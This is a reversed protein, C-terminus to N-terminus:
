ATSDAAEEIMAAEDNQGAVSQSTYTSAPPAYETSRYKVKPKFDAFLIPEANAPEIEETEQSMVWENFVKALEELRVSTAVLRQVAKLLESANIGAVLDTMVQQHATLAERTEASALELAGRVEQRIGTFSSKSSDFVQRMQGANQDLLEKTWAYVSESNSILKDASRKVQWTLYIAVGLAAVILALFIGAFVALAVAEFTTM